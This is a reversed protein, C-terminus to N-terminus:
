YVFARRVPKLDFYSDQLRVMRDIEPDVYKNFLETLRKDNSHLLFVSTTGDIGDHSVKVELERHVIDLRAVEQLISKLNQELQAEMNEDLGKLTTQRAEFSTTSNAPKWLTRGRAIKQEEM